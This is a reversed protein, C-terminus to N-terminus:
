DDRVESCQTAAIAYGSLVSQYPELSVICDILCSQREFFTSFSSPSPSPSPRCVALVHIDDCEQFSGDQIQAKVESCLEGNPALRFVGEAKAGGVYLTM